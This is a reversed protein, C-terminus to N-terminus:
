PTRWANTLRDCYDRYAADRPDTASEAPAPRCILWDGERQLTGPAGNITCASGEGASLPYAGAPAGDPLPRHWATSL